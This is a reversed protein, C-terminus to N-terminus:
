TPALLLDALDTNPPYAELRESVNYDIDDAVYRCDNHTDVYRVFCKRRGCQPCTTKQQRRGTVKPSELQYRYNKNM